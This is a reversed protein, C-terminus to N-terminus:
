GTIQTPFTNSVDEQSLFNTITGCNMAPKSEICSFTLTYSQNDSLAKDGNHGFSGGTCILGKDLGCFYLIGDNGEVVIQWIGKSLSEFLVDAEGYVGKFVLELDQQYGVGGGENVIITQNFSSLYPDCDFKNYVGADGSYSTLGTTATLVGTTGAPTLTKAAAVNFRNIIYVHDIGGPQVKCYRAKGNSITCAM